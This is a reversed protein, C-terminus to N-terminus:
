SNLAIEINAVVEAARADLEEFIAKKTTFRVSGGSAYRINFKSYHEKIKAFRAADILKEQVQKAYKFNNATFLNKTQYDCGFKPIVNQILNEPASGKLSNVRFSMAQCNDVSSMNDVITRLIAKSDDQISSVPFRHDFNYCLVGRCYNLGAMLLNGYRDERWIEPDLDSDPVSTTSGYFCDWKTDESFGYLQRKDVASYAVVPTATAM